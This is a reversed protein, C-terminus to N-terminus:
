KGAGEIFTQKQKSGLSTGFYYGLPLMVISLGAMRVDSQSSLLIMMIGGIISGIALIPVINQNLWSPSNALTKGLDRASGIDSYALKLEDLDMKRNELAWERIESERDIEIQKLKLATEGAMEPSLKDGLKDEIFEQGKNAVASALTNLGRSVLSQIIPAAAAAIIPIM